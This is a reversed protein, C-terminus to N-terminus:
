LPMDEYNNNLPEKGVPLVEIALKKEKRATNKRSRERLKSHFPLRHSHRFQGSYPM